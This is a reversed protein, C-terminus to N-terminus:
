LITNDSPMEHFKNATLPMVRVDGVGFKVTEQINSYTGYIASNQRMYSLIISYNNKATMFSTNAVSDVLSFVGTNTEL